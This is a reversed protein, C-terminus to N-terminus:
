GTKSLPYIFKKSRGPILGHFMWGTAKDSVSSDQGIEGNHEKFLPSCLFQSVHLYSAVYAFLWLVLQVSSAVVNQVSM